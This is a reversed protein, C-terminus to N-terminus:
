VVDNYKGSLIGAGVSYGSLGVRDKLDLKTSFKKGKHEKSTKSEYFLQDGPKIVANKNLKNLAITKCVFELLRGEVNGQKRLRYYIKNLNDK